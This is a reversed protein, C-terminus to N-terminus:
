CAQEAVLGESRADPGLHDHSSSHTSSRPDHWARETTIRRDSAVTHGVCYPGVCCSPRSSGLIEEAAEHPRWNSGSLGLPASYTSAFSHLPPQAVSLSNREMVG